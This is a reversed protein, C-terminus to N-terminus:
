KLELLVCTAPLDSKIKFGSKPSFFNFEGEKLKKNKSASIETNGSIDILLYACNSPKIEVAKGQVIEIKYTHVLKQSWQF